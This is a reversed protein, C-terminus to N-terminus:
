ASRSADSRAAYAVLKSNKNVDRGIATRRMIKEPLPQHSDGADRQEGRERSRGKRLALRYLLATEHDAAGVRRRGARGGVHERDELLVLGVRRLCPAQALDERPGRRLRAVRDVEGPVVGLVAAGGALETQQLLLDLVQALSVVQHGGFVELLDLDEDLEGDALEARAVIGGGQPAELFRRADGRVACPPHRRPREESGRARRGAVEGARAARQALGLRQEGAQPARGGPHSVPLVPLRTELAAAPLDQAVFSLEGLGLAGQLPGHHEVLLEDLENGLHGPALQLHRRQRLRVAIQEDPLIVHQHGHEELLALVGLGLPPQAIRELARERDEAAVRDLGGPRQHAERLDHELLAAEVLGGLEALRRDRDILLDADSGVRAEEALRAHGDGRREDLAPAVALRDRLELDHAFAQLLAGLRPLVADAARVGGPDVAQSLEAAAGFGDLLREAVVAILQLDVALVRVRGHLRAAEEGQREGGVFFVIFRQAFEAGGDRREEGRRALARAVFAEAKRAADAQPADQVRVDRQEPAEGGVAAPQVIEVRDALREADDVGRAARRHLAGQDRRRRAGRDAIGLQRLERALLLVGLLADARQAADQEVEQPPRRFLRQRHHDGGHALVDVLQALAARLDLLRDLLAERIVGVEDVRLRQRELLRLLQERGALRQEHEVPRLVAGEDPRHRAFARRAEVHGREPAVLAVAQDGRQAAREIEGVGRQLAKRAEVDGGRVLEVGLEDRRDLRRPLVRAAQEDHRM